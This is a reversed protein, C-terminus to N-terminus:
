VNALVEKKQKEMDNRWEEMTLNSKKLREKEMKTWIDAWEEKPVSRVPKTNTPKWYPNPREDETSHTSMLLCANWNVHAFGQGGGSYATASELYNGHDEENLTNISVERRENYDQRENGKYKQLNKYIDEIVRIAKGKEVSDRRDIAIANVQEIYNLCRNLFNDLAVSDLLNKEYQVEKELNIAKDMIKLIKRVSKNKSM